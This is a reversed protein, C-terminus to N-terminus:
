FHMQDSWSFEDDDSDEKKEELGIVGEKEEIEVEGGKHGSIFVRVADSHGYLMLIKNKSVGVNLLEKIEESNPDRYDCSVEEKISKPKKGVLWFKLSELDMTKYSKQEEYRKLDNEVSKRLVYKIYDSRELHGDRNIILDISNALKKPIKLNIKLNEEVM